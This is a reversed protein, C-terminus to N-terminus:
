KQLWLDLCKRHFFHKYTCDLQCIADEPQYNSLCIACCQEYKHLSPELGVRILSDSIQIVEESQHKDLRQLILYRIMAKPLLFTYAIGYAIHIYGMALFFIMILYLM